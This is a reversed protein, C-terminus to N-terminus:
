SGLEVKGHSTKKNLDGAEVREIGWPEYEPPECAEDLDQMM